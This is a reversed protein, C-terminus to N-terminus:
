LYGGLPEWHIWHKVKLTDLVDVTTIKSTVQSQQHKILSPTEHLYTQSLNIKRKKKSPIKNGSGQHKSCIDSYFSASNASYMVGVGVNPKLHHSDFPTAGIGFAGLFYLRILPKNIMMTGWYARLLAKMKWNGHDFSTAHQRRPRKNSTINIGHELVKQPNKEHFAQKVPPPGKM